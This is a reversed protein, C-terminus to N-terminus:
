AGAEKKPRGGNRGGSMTIRKGANRRARELKLIADPITSPDIRPSWQADVEMEVHSVHKDDWPWSESPQDSFRKAEVASFKWILTVEDGSPSLMDQMWRTHNEGVFANGADRGNRNPSLTTTDITGVIQNSCTYNKLVKVIM